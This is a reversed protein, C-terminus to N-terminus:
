VAASFPTAELNAADSVYRVAFVNTAIDWIDLVAGKFGGTTNGTAFLTITDSETATTGTNATAFGVVTDGGDVFLTATGVFFTSADPVVVSAAGTFTTGVILTYRNGTATAAPLTVVIGAARNLAVVKNAHTDATLAATSGTISVVGISQVNPTTMTPSSLIKNTLTQSTSTDVLTATTGASTRTKLLAATTDYKVEVANSDDPLGPGGPGAQIYKEM